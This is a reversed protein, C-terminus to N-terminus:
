DDNRWLKQLQHFPNLHLYLIDPSRNKRMSLHSKCSAVCSSFKVEFVPNGSTKMAVCKNFFCKQPFFFFLFYASFFKTAFAIRHFHKTRSYENFTDRNINLYKNNSRIFKNTLGSIFCAKWEVTGLQMKQKVKVRQNILCNMNCEPGCCPFKLYTLTTM